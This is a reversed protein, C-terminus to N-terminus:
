GLPFKELETYKPGREGLESKILRFDRTEFKLNQTKIKEFEELFLKKDKVSKVRAITLHSMFRKEKPFLDWLAEDVWKQLALLENGILHVWMIRVREKTFVGLNGVFSNFRPFKIERLRKKVVELKAAPIEGLFKLTLHLNEKETIKGTWTKVASLEKQLRMIEGQIERPLDIAIFCRTLKDAM